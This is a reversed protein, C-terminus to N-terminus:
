SSEHLGPVRAHHEDPPVALGTAVRAVCCYWAITMVLEVRQRDDFRDAVASWIRDPVTIDSTLADTLALVAVEPETFAQEDPWRHLARLKEEGVGAKRAAGWHSRWVYDSGTLQAVRLIALELLGRDATSSSRLGWGLGIWADLIEPSNGLAQYMAPVGDVSKMVRQYIASLREDGDATVRLGVRPAATM